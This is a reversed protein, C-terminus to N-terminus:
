PKRGVEGRMERLRLWAAEVTGATEHGRVLTVGHADVSWWGGDDARLTLHGAHAMCGHDRTEKWNLKPESM